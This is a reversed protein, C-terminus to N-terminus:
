ALSNQGSKKFYAKKNVENHAKKNLKKNAKKNM